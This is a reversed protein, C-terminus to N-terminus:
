QWIYEWKNKHWKGKEINKIIINHILNTDFYHPKCYLHGFLKTKDCFSDALNMFSGEYFHIEKAQQLVKVYALIPQVSLGKERLWDIDLNVVPLDTKIYNRNIPKMQRGVNDRNREHILIYNEGFHKVIEQYTKEEREVDRNFTLNRWSKHNIIEDQTGKITVVNGPVGGIQINDTDNYLDKFLNNLRGVVLGVKDYEKCYVEKIYPALMIGDGVGGPHNINITKM